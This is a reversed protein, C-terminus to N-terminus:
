FYSTLSGPSYDRTLDIVTWPCNHSPDLSSTGFYTNRVQNHLMSAQTYLPESEKNSIKWNPITRFFGIMGFADHDIIWPDFHGTNFFKNFNKRVILFDLAHQLDWSEYTISSGCAARCWYRKWELARESELLKNEIFANWSTSILCAIEFELVRWIYFHFDNWEYKENRQCNTHQLM